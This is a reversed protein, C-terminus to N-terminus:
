AEGPPQLQEPGYECFMVRKVRGEERGEAALRAEDREVQGPSRKIRLNYEKLIKVLEDNQGYILERWRNEYYRYLIRLRCPFRSLMDNDLMEALLLIWM